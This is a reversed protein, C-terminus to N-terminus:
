RLHVHRYLLPGPSFGQAQMRVDTPQLHSLCVVEFLSVGRRCYASSEARLFRTKRPRQGMRAAVHRVDAGTLQGYCASVLLAGLLLEAVGAVHFHCSQHNFPPWHSALCTGYVGQWLIELWTSNDAYSRAAVILVGICVASESKTAM